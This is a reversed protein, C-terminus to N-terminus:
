KGAVAAIACTAALAVLYYAFYRLRGGISVFLLLRVCFLGFVFATLFSLTIPLTESGALKGIERAELVTAGGVSILGLILSFAVAAAPTIGRVLSTSVTSGSRSVGPLVGVGQALGVFVADSIKISALDKVSRHEKPVAFLFLASVSFCVALLILSSEVRVFLPKGFYGVVGAPVSAILLLGIVRRQKTLISVIERRFYFVVSLLTGAHVSVTYVLFEEESIGLKLIKKLLALHGSSSIPLFETVSQFIGFLLSQLVTV